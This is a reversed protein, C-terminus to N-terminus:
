QAQKEERELALDLYKHLRDTENTMSNMLKVFTDNSSPPIDRVLDQHFKSRREIRDMLQESTVCKLDIGTSENQIVIKNLESM